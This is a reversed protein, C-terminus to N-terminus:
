SVGDAFDIAMQKADDLTKATWEGHGYAKPFSYHHSNKCGRAHPNPILKPDNSTTWVVDFGEDTINEAHVDLHDEQTWFRIGDDIFDQKDTPVYACDGKEVKSGIGFGYCARHSWGYWKQETESFGICAVNSSEYISDVFTINHIILLDIISPKSEISDLATSATLYCKNDKSLVKIWDKNKDWECPSVSLECYKKIYEARQERTIM